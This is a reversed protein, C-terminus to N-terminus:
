ANQLHWRIDDEDSNKEVDRFSGDSIDTGPGPWASATGVYSQQFTAIAPLVSGQVFNGLTTVAATIVGGLAGVGAVVIGVAVPGGGAAATAIGTALAALFTQIGIYIGAWMAVIAAAMNHLAPKIQTATQAVAKFAEEQKGLVGKYEGAATGDWEDDTRLRSEVLTGSEDAMPKGVQDFWGQGVEWLRIPNGAQKTFNQITTWTEDLRARAWDLMGVLQAFILENTRRVAEVLVPWFKIAENIKANIQSILDNIDIPPM